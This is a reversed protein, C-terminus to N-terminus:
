VVTGERDELPIDRVRWDGPLLRRGGNWSVLGELALGFLAM